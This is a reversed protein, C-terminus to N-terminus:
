SNTLFDKKMEKLLTEIEAFSRNSEKILKNLQERKIKAIEQLEKLKM